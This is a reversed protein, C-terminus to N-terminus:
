SKDGKMSDLLAQIDVSRWAIARASLRVPKPFRGSKVGALWCSRSVPIIPEILPNSKPDGLIQRLRVLPQKSIASMVTGIHTSGTRQDFHLRVPPFWDATGCWLRTQSSSNLNSSLGEGHLSLVRPCTM